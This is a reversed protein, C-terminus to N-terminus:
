TWWCCADLRAKGALNPGKVKGRCIWVALGIKGLTVALVKSSFWESNRIATDLRPEVYTWAGSNFSEEQCYVIEELSDKYFDVVAKAELFPFPSLQELRVIAVHRLNN